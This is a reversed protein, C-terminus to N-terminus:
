IGISRKHGVINSPITNNIPYRLNFPITLVNLREFLHLTSQIMKFFSVADDETNKPVKMFQKAHPEWFQLLTKSSEKRTKIKRQLFKEQHDNSAHAFKDPLGYVVLNRAIDNLMESKDSLLHIGTLQRLLSAYHPIICNLSQYYEEFNDIDRVVLTDTDRIFPCIFKWLFVSIDDFSRNALDHFTKDYMQREIDDKAFFRFKEYFGENKFFKRIVRLKLKMNEEEGTLYIHAADELDIYAVLYPVFSKAWIILKEFSIVCNAEDDYYLISELIMKKYQKKDVIKFCMCSNDHEDEVKFFIKTLQHNFKHLVVKMGYAIPKRNFEKLLQEINMNVMFMIKNKTQNADIM